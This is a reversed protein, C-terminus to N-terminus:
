NQKVNAIVFFSAQKFTEFVPVNHKKAMARLTKEIVKTRTYFIDDRKAVRQRLLKDPILVIADPVYDWFLSGLIYHRKTMKELEKDIRQYHKKEEAETHKTDHWSEKHLRAMLLDQDEWVKSTKCYHSKGSGPCAFVVPM